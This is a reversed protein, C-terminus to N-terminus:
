AAQLTGAASADAGAAAARERRPLATAIAAGIAVVAAGVWLAPQVGDVYALPSAFSGSGAFVTSLVAVGFVGGVERIANNAGSAQGAQEPAVAGLLASASPAFVLAMGVGAMAFPVILGSFQQGVAVTAAFWALAGAQLSLGAVMFGRAGRREAFIGALPAVLMTSGTWVLMRLGAQLPSYGMVLQLVQTLLFISGFTGFYMFFSVANTVAFSRRRFLSVPLMPAEARREWGVFAALLAVGGALSAVILPSGWGEGQGRVLGFVLGFLGAAALGVGPLDLTTSPGHSERLIRAAVPILVLGIPVNIWFIWHWSIGEVVAGGVLPGLAVGMGSIGSWIGLAAGRKEAPFAGALLTLTLPAVVAGGVGQLARAVVLAGTTPALAAAASAVTFLALGGLFLRRRGFRDALASAPLLVVAFALTYANITWELSELTAGLDTRIAPLAVTVILNDLVVMFLALSVVILTAVTNRQPPASSM